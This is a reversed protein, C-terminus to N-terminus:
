LLPRNPNCRSMRYAKYAEGMIFISRRIKDPEVVLALRIENRGRGPTLYFSAAPTVAVTENGLNFKELMFLCYDKVDELDPFQLM